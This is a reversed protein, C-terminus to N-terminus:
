VVTLKRSSRREESRFDKEQTRLIAAERVKRSDNNLTKTWKDFYRSLLELSPEHSGQIM